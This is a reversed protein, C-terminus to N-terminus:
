LLHPLSVKKYGPRKKIPKYYTFPVQFTDHIKALAVKIAHENMSTAYNRFMLHYFSAWMLAADDFYISKAPGVLSYCQSGHLMARALNKNVVACASMFLRRKNLYPTVDAAFDDFTLRDLTLDISSSGGHCSIHLYRKRSAAFKRMAWQLEKRTRIYVYQSEHGGLKFIDRLIRGERRSREDEYALSEIIFLSFTTAM